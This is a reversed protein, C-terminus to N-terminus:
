EVVHEHDQIHEPCYCCQGDCKSCYRFSTKPSTESNLECVLCQHTVRKASERARADFTRRRQGQKLDLWHERGFFVLYNTVSALILMRAMWDGVILGYGYGIWAILALWRIQIPLVFYIHLVFNPVLRAFALFVTMYLFVNSAVVDAGLMWAFFTAGVNAFYGLWLFTNYRVTGWHQELTTGFRYFLWWGFAAFLLNTAPPVFAFTLLRWVEGQIVLSPVLYIKALADIGGNQAAGIRQLLYLLVQGAIIVATLNPIAWRGFRSELRKILSM